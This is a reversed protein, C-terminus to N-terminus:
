RRGGLLGAYGHLRAADHAQQDLESARALDAAAGRARLAAAFALRTRALWPRAGLRENQALAREFHLAAQDHEGSTSALMGLFREMSGECVTSGLTFLQGAYPALEGYVRRARLADGLGACLESARVLVLLRFWDRSLRAFDGEALWDLEARAEARQGRDLSLVARYARRPLEPLVALQELVVLELEPTRGQLRYLPYLQAGCASVAIEPMFMRGLERAEIAVREADALEGRLMHLAARSQVASWTFFPHKFREGAEASKGIELECAGLDGLRLFDCARYRRALVELEADRDREAAALMRASLALREDICPSEGTVLTRAFLAAVLAFADGSATAIREAEKSWAEVREPDRGGYSLVSLRAYLRARLASDGEPLRALARLMLAVGPQDVTPHLSSEGAFGLAAQALLEFQGTSEALDAAREFAPRARDRDGLRIHADGIYLHLKAREAALTAGPALDLAELGELFHALALEYAYTARAYRGARLSLEVARAVNGLAAGRVAHHALVSLADPEGARQAELCSVAADHLQARRSAKLGAYLVEQILGHAFRFRVGSGEARVVIRASEAEGLLDLLEAAPLESLYALTALDFRTGLVAACGLAAQCASSVAALRRAISERIAEPLLRTTAGRGPGAPGAGDSSARSLEKVFLPNGESRAVLAALESESPLSGATHLYLERVEHPALGGLEHHDCESLARLAELGPKQEAESRCTGVVLVGSRGLRRAAFGLLALSGADAAHLDDLLLLLPRERASEELFQCLADFFRLRGAQAARLAPQDTSPERGDLLARLEGPTSSRAGAGGSSDAHSRDLARLVQQWPWYPPSGDEEAAFAMLVRAGLEGARAALQGLLRTKGMGAEGEVLVVGGHGRAAQEVREGIRTLLTRRGVFDDSSESRVEPTAVDITPLELATADARRASLLWRPWDALGIPDVSPPLAIGDAACASVIARAFGRVDRYRRQPEAELAREVTNAFTKPISPELTRLRRARGLVVQMLVKAETPGDYAEVGALCRFFVAGLAWVDTAPTIALGSAQEPAMYGVTGIVQGPRTVPAHGHVKAMGFDLLKPVTMGNQVSLFINSPKIDRHLVGLDHAWALAGTIPLLLALTEGVSLKGRLALAEQLSMGELLEMALYPVGDAHEGVALVRVIHPHRLAHTTRGELSFRQRSEDLRQREPRMLKVAVREGSEDDTARYLVGMGGQAIVGELRYKGGLTSGIWDAMRGHKAQGM